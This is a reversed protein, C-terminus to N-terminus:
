KLASPTVVTYFLQSHKRLGKLYPRIIELAAARREADLTELWSDIDICKWDANRPNPMVHRVIEPYAEPCLEKLDRLMRYSLAYPDRRSRRFHREWTGWSKELESCMERSFLTAVGEVYWDMIHADILHASEHALLPYYNQHDPDVGIYVVFIGNTSDICQTQSFNEALRYRSAADTKQSRRLIVNNVPIVPEGFEEKAKELCQFLFQEGQTDNLPKYAEHVPGDPVGSLM